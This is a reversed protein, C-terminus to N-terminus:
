CASHSVPKVYLYIWPSARNMQKAGQFVAM